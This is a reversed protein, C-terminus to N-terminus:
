SPDRRWLSGIVLLPLLVALVIANSSPWATITDIIQPLHQHMQSTCSYAVPYIHEFFYMNLDQLLTRAPLGPPSPPPVTLTSQIITKRHRAYFKKSLRNNRM